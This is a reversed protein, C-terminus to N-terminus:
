SKTISDWTVEDSTLADSKPDYRIVKCTNSGAIWELIAYDSNYVNAEYDSNYGTIRRSSNHIHLTISEGLNFNGQEYPAM